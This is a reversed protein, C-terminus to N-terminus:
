LARDLQRRRGQAVHPEQRRPLREQLQRRSEPLASLGGSQRPARGTPRACWDDYSQALTVAVAQRRECRHVQAVTEAKGRCAPGPLYGHERLFRGALMQPRQALAALHRGAFEQARGRLRDQPRFQARGQVLRRGDLRRRSQRDHLPLQGLARRLLADLRSQEYMRVYSQIKDAEMEPNLLTHLPELARYTDWLWNDVYFPRADQHVQHDFGSYYQGDETINVM